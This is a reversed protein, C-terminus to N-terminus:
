FTKSIGAHLISHGTEYAGTIGWGGFSNLNIGLTFNTGTEPETRKEITQLQNSSDYYAASHKANLVFLGGGFFPQVSVVGLNQRYNIGANFTTREAYVDTDGEGSFTSLSGGGSAFIGFNGFGNDIAGHFGIYPAGEFNIGEIEAGDGMGASLSITTAITQSTAAVMAISLFLKGLKM